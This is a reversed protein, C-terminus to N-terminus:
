WSYKRKWIIKEIEKPKPFKKWSPRLDQFKKQKILCFTLPLILFIV